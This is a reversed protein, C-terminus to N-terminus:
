RYRNFFSASAVAAGLAALWGPGAVGTLPGELAALFAYSM